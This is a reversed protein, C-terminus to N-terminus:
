ERVRTSSTASLPIAASTSSAALSLRKPAASLMKDEPTRLRMAAGSSHGSPESPIIASLEVRLTRWNSSSSRSSSLESAETAASRRHLRDSASSAASRRRMAASSSSARRM